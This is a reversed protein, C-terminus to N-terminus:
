TRPCEDNIWQVCYLPEADDQMHPILNVDCDHQAKLFDRFIILEDVNVYKPNFALIILKM